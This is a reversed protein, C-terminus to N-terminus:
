GARSGVLLHGSSQPEAHTAFLAKEEKKLSWSPKSMGRLVGVIYLQQLKYSTRELAWTRALTVSISTENLTPDRVLGRSV